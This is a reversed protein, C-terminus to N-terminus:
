SSPTADSPYSPSGRRKDRLKKIAWGGIVLAALAPVVRKGVAVASAGLIAGKGGENEGAIREGILAGALKGLM